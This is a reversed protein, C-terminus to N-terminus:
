NELNKTFFKESKKLAERLRYHDFYMERGKEIEKLEKTTLGLFDIVLADVEMDRKWIDILTKDVTPKMKLDVNIHYLITKHYMGVAEDLVTRPTNTTLFLDLGSSSLNDFAILRMQYKQIMDRFVPVLSAEGGSSSLYVTIDSKDEATNVDKVFGQLVEETIKKDLLILM